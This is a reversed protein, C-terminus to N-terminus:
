HHLHPRYEIQLYPDNHLTDIAAQLESENAYNGFLANAYNQAIYRCYVHPPDDFNIGSDSASVLYLAITKNKGPISVLFNDASM